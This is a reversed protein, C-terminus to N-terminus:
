IFNTIYLPVWWFFKDLTGHLRLTAKSPLPLTYLYGACGLGSVHMVFSPFVVFVVRPKGLMKDLDWKKRLIM